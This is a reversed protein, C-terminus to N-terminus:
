EKVDSRHPIGLRAAWGATPASRRALLRSRARTRPRLGSLRLVNSPASWDSRLPEHLNLARAMAPVHAVFGLDIRIPDVQAIAGIALHERPSREPHRHARRPAAEAQELAIEGGVDLRRVAARPSPM